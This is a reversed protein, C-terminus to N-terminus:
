AQAKNRFRLLCRFTQIDKDVRKYVTENDSEALNRVVGSLEVACNHMHFGLTGSINLSASLAAYVGFSALGICLALTCILLYIRSKKSKM